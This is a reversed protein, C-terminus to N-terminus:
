WPPFTTSTLLARSPSPGKVGSLRARRGPPFGDFIDKGRAYLAFVQHFTTPPPPSTAWEAGVVEPLDLFPHGAAVFLRPEDKLGHGVLDGTLDAAPGGDERALHVRHDQGPSAKLSSKTLATM